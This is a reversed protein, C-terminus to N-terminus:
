FEWSFGYHGQLLYSREYVHSHGCLVLDVGFAELIPLVNERMEILEYDLIPDDSDHTGKTYPPHHWYAILWESTNEALDSALWECMPGDSSRDSTMSDLVVFHINGYNFSYYRETGSPIGGAEGATPLSFIDLYAFNGFQDASYTEHNGIAPWLVSKRLMTPYMRFVADQYQLDTGSSYANDGLMLWLDTHRAGTFNIYADRVTRQDAYQTGADGLVWIRTPKGSTPATVFFFEVGIGFTQGNGGISYYYKTDPRLNSLAVIHETTQSTHVVNRDLNNVNTGYSVRSDTGFDTRWRIIISTPTGIQLYPGRMLVAAEGIFAIFFLTFGMAVQWRCMPYMMVSGSVTVVIYCSGKAFKM